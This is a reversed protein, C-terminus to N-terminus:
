FFRSRDMLCYKTTGRGRETDLVFLMLGPFLFSCGREDFKQGCIIAKRKFHKIIIETGFNM